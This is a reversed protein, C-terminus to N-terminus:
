EGELEKIHNIIVPKIKEFVEEIPFDGDWWDINLAYAIKDLNEQFRNQNEEAIWRKKLIRQKENIYDIALNKKMYEPWKEAMNGFSQSENEDGILTYEEGIGDVYHLQKFGNQRRINKFGRVNLEEKSMPVLNLVTWKDM